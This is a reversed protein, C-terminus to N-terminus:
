NGEGYPHNSRGLYEIHDRASEPIYKMNIHKEIFTSIYSLQWCILPHKSAAPCREGIIMVVDMLWDFQYGTWLKFSSTAATLKSWHNIGYLSLLVHITFISLDTPLHKQELRPVVHYPLGFKTSKDSSATMTLCHSSLTGLCHSVALAPTLYTNTNTNTNLYAFIQIQIQIQIQFGVLHFIQIQIQIQNAYKPTNSLYKEFVSKKKVSQYM